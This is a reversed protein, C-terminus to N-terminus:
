NRAKSKYDQLTKSPRRCCALSSQRGASNSWCIHYYKCHGVKRLEGIKKNLANFERKLNEAKYTVASCNLLDWPARLHHLILAIELDTCQGHEGDRWKADLEVVRDVLSVDAYRKKQSGRLKDLDGGKAAPSRFTLRSGLCM